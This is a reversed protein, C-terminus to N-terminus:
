TKIITKNTLNNKAQQEVAAVAKLQVDKLLLVLFWAEMGAAVATVALWYYATQIPM